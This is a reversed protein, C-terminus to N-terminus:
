KGLCDQHDNTGEDKGNEGESVLINTAIFLQYAIKVLVLIIILVLIHHKKKLSTSM